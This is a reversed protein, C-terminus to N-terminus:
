LSTNRVAFIRSLPRLVLYFTLFTAILRCNCRFLGVFFASPQLKFPLILLDVSRSCAPPRVPVPQLTFPFQNCPSRSCAPSHISVPQFTFPFLSSLSHFCAPSHISVPQLAFPFLSSPSRSCAPPRISVPQLTFPFQNCPSRFCAPSHISVPQLAFPFLSSPSRSCAPPRVSFIMMHKLELLRDLKCLNLDVTRGVCACIVMSVFVQRSMGRHPIHIRIGVAGIYFVLCM